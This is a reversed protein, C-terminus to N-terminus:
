RLHDIIAQPQIQGQGPADSQHLIAQAKPSSQAV